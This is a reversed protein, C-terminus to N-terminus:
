VVCISWKIQAWACLQMGKTEMQEWELLRREWLLLLSVSILLSCHARVSTQRETEGDRNEEEKQKEQKDRLKKNLYFFEVCQCITKTRVQVCDVSLM